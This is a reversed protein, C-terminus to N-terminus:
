NTHLDGSRTAAKAPARANIIARLAERMRGYANAATAIDETRAAELFREQMALFEEKLAKLPAERVFRQGDRPNRSTAYHAFNERAEAFSVGYHPGADIPGADDTGDEHWSCLGCIEHTYLGDLTLAGCVRCCVSPMDVTRKGDLIRLAMRELEGRREPSHM